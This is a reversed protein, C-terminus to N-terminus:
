VAVKVAVPADAYEQDVPALPLGRVRVGGDLVVIVTIPELKPHVSVATEEIVTLGVGTALAPVPVVIQLPVLVVKNALPPVIYLQAGEGVSLLVVMLLGTAVGDTVVVYVTVTLLLKLQKEVSVTIILTIGVGTVLAPVSTAIQLPCLVNNFALPAVVYLQDGVADKLLGEMEFGTAVGDAVV